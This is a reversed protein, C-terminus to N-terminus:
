SRRTTLPQGRKSSHVAEGDWRVQAWSRRCCFYLTEDVNVVVCVLCVSLCYIKNGPLICKMILFLISLHIKYCYKRRSWISILTHLFLFHERSAWRKVVPFSTQLESSVLVLRSETCFYWKSHHFMRNVICIIFSLFFIGKDQAGLVDRQEDADVVMGEQNSRTESSEQPKSSELVTEEPPTQHSHVQVACVVATEGISPSAQSVLDLWSQRHKALSSASSQSTM